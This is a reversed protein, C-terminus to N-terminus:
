NRRQKNINIRILLFKKTKVISSNKKMPKRRLKLKSKTILSLIKKLLERPHKENVNLNNVNKKKKLKRKEKKDLSSKEQDSEDSTSSSSDSQAKIIDKTFKRRLKKEDKNEKPKSQISEKLRRKAELFALVVEVNGNTKYLLKLNQCRKNFGATELQKLKESHLTLFEESNTKMQM